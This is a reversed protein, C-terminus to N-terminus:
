WDLDEDFEDISAQLGDQISKRMGPISVLYLTEQLSEWDEQSVLVANHQKGTIVVPSHSTVVEDILRYLNARAQTTNILNTMIM